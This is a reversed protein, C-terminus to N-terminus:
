AHIWKAIVQTFNKDEVQQLQQGRLDEVIAGSNLLLNLCHNPNGIVNFQLTHLEVLLCLNHSSQHFKPILLNSFSQKLTM